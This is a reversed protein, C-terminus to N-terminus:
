VVGVQPTVFVVTGWGVPVVPVALAVVVLVEVGPVAFAVVPVALAVVPVVWVEVPPVALELVPVLPELLTIEAEPPDPPELLPPPLRAPDPVLEPASGATDNVPAGEVMAEVPLLM